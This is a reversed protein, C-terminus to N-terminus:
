SFDSENGPPAAADAERGRFAEDGFACVDEDGTPALGREVGGHLLDACADGADLAVNGIERIEVAEIRRNALLLATEVDEEGVRAAPVNAGSPATVSSCKSLVNLVLTLPVSKVTCFARGSRMSPPEIMRVAEVVETFPVSAKLTYLAEFAAMREKARHQVRSRFCRLIRTLARLGPAVSVGPRCCPRAWVPSCALSIVAVRM